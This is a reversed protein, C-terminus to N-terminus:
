LFLLAIGRNGREAKTAQQLIFKVKKVKIYWPNKSVFLLNCQFHIGTNTIWMNTVTTNTGTLRVMSVSSHRTNQWTNSHCWNMFYQGESQPHDWQLSIASLKVAIDWIEPGTGNIYNNALQKGKYMNQVFPVFKTLFSMHSWLIVGANCHM